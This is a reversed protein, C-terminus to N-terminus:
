ELKRIWRYKRFRLFVPLGKFLQDSQVALVVLEVPAKWVFATLFSLPMVILWTSIMNMYMNFRADGSGQIIGVSVPMQYSMGVMVVSMIMILHDALQLAEETLQYTSLLPTRLAFLLLGLVTGVAVDLVSLTRGAARVKEASGAGITKGIVVASASSMAIVIVKLYQFFTTAVSNAAIADDSLHGLIATQMPVSIAWILSSALIPMAVKFYSRGIARDEEIPANGHASGAPLNESSLRRGFLCRRSLYGGARRRENRERFVGGFLRVKQDVFGVYLAVIILEATRAILTGIAAGRIGMEPFGANGFILAYNIGGNLILSIVSIVFSIRVTEVSRLMSILLNSILLLPFSWKLIGLYAVGEEIIEGSSTFLGVLQYPFVQCAAVIVVGVWFSFTLAAGAARRIRRIDGPQQQGWYRSTLVVLANGSAIAIQNIVFFIQNVTAAGSLAKQSYSGLMMNDLMNVSYAIVNQLAVVIMLQFFSKYFAADRIFFSERTRSSDTM